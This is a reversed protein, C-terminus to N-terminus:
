TLEFITQPQNSDRQKKQNNVGSLYRLPLGVKHCFYEAYKNKLALYEQYNEQNVAEKPRPGYIEEFYPYCHEPLHWYQSPYHYIPNCCDSFDSKVTKHKGAPFTPFCALLYDPYILAWSATAPSLQIRHYKISLMILGRKAELLGWDECVRMDKRAKLIDRQWNINPFEREYFRVLREHVIGIFPYHYEKTWKIIAMRRRFFQTKTM